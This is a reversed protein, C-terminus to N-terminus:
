IRLRRTASDAASRTEVSIPLFASLAAPISRTTVETWPKPHRSSPEGHLSLHSTKQHRRPTPPSSPMTTSPLCVMRLAAAAAPIIRPVRLQLLWGVGPPVVGGGLVVQAGEVLPDSRTTMRYVPIPTHYLPLLQAPLRQKAPKPNPIPIRIQTPPLTSTTAPRSILRTSSWSHLGVEPTSISVKYGWLDAGSGAMGLHEREEDGMIVREILERSEKDGFGRGRGDGGGSTVERMPVLAGDEKSVLVTTPLGAATLARGLPTEAPIAEETYSDTSARSQSGAADKSTILASSTSSSAHPVLASSAAGGGVDADAEGGTVLKLEEKWVEGEARDRGGEALGGILRKGEANVRWEGNTATDLIMKRRAEGELRREKAKREVEWAWGWRDERRQQNEKDVIQVFSANDESTYNRQFADLTLDDRVTDPAPQKRKKKPQSPGPTEGAGDLEDFEEGRRRSSEGRVDPTDWGRAGIPTRAARRSGGGPVSIYPTGMNELERRRAEKAEREEKERTGSPGALGVGDEKEQALQALRRISSSLLEPDNNTLATLYANTAHVHPLNPFFDRTIIHSLADTYTDEQIILQQEHQLCLPRVYTSSESSICVGNVL